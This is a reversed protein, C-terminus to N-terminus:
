AEQDSVATPGTPPESKTKTTKPEPRALNPNTDIEWEGVEIIDGAKLEGHDPSWVPPGVWTAKVRKDSM